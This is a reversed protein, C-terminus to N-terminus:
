DDERKVLWGRFGVVGGEVLKRVVVVHSAHSMGRALLAHRGSNYISSRLNKTAVTGASDDLPVFFSDGVDMALWPYLRGTLNGSPAVEIGKDIVYKSM